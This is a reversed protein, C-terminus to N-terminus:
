LLRDNENPTAVDELEDSITQILEIKNSEALEVEKEKSRM